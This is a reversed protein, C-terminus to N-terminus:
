KGIRKFRYYKEPLPQPSYFVGEPSHVVIDGSEADVFFEWGLLTKGDIVWFGKLAGNECRVEQEPPFNIWGRDSEASRGTISSKVVMHFRGLGLPRLELTLGKEPPLLERPVYRQRVGNKESGLLLDIPTGIVPLPEDDERGGPYNTAPM